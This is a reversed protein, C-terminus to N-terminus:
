SDKRDNRSSCWRSLYYKRQKVPMFTQLEHYTKKWKLVDGRLSPNYVVVVQGQDQRVYRISKLVKANYALRESSSPNSLYWGLNDDNAIKDCWHAM